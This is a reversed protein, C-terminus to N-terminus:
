REAQHGEVWIGGVISNTSLTATAADGELLTFSSSAAAPHDFLVPWDIGVHAEVPEPEPPPPPEPADAVTIEYDEVFLVGSDINGVRWTATGEQRGTFTVIGNDESATANAADGGVLVVAVVDGSFVKQRTADTAVELESSLVPSSPETVAVSFELTESTSSALYVGEGEVIGFVEASNSSSFMTIYAHGDGSELSFEDARFGLDFLESAGVAVSVDVTAPPPVVTIDYDLLLFYGSEYFGARWTASGEQVGTFTIETGSLEAAANAEDGSVLELAVVEIGQDEVSTAGVELEVEAESVDGPTVAVTFVASNSHDDTYALYEAEGALVGYVTVDMEGPEVHAM